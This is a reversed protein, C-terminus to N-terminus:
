PPADAADPKATAQPRRLVLSFQDRAAVGDYWQKIPGIADAKARTLSSSFDRDCHIRGSPMERAMSIKYSLVEGPISPPVKPNEFQYGPPLTWTVHDHESWAYPFQFGYHRVAEPFPSKANARFFAPHFILREPTQEAYDPWDVTYNVALATDPDADGTLATLQVKAPRFEEELAHRLYNRRKETGMRRMQVRLVEASHGTWLRRGTGRVGGDTGLTFAGASIIGSADADAPTVPFFEQTGPSAILGQAGECEWPVQGFPCLGAGAPYSLKWDAGLRVRTAIEPLFIGAVMRQDFPYANLNPLAVAHAELGAARLLGIELYIFHRVTFNRTPYNEFELLEDISDPLQTLVRNTLPRHQFRLYLTQVYRHIAAAKAAPDNLGTTITGALLRGRRTPDGMDSEEIYLPTAVSGWPAKKTDVTINATSARTTAVRANKPTYAVLFTLANASAPGSFPEHYLPPLDQATVLLLNHSDDHRSVAHYAPGNLSFERLVWNYSAAQRYRLEIQREPIGELQLSANVSWVPGEDTHGTQVELIAGKEVGSVALFTENAEIENNGFLRSAWNQESASRLVPKEQLAERGFVHVSGDANTLRAAIVIDGRTQIGEATVSILSVRTLRAAKEPDYIKYRVYEHVRREEPFDSDDISIRRFIVEAPADPALTPAAAALDTAPM